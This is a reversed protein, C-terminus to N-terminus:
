GAVRAPYENPHPKSKQREAAKEHDSAPIASVTIEGNVPDPWEAGVSEVKRLNAKLRALVVKVHRSQRM